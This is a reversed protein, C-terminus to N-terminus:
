EFAVADRLGRAWDSATMSAKGAPKVILLEISGSGTGVFVGDNAVDVVGPELGRGPAVRARVIGIRDDGVVTHAGPEDSLARIRYAITAAPETWVVRAEDKSFKPAFTPNGVQEVPTLNGAVIGKVTQM